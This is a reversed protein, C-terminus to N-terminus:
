REDEMLMAGRPCERVCLGCGKCHGADLSYGGGEAALVPGAAPGGGHDGRASRRPTEHAAMPGRADEGTASRRPTERAAMPGRADEGTASRRPTEHPTHPLLPIREGGRRDIAMDPCVAACTDCRVCHGCAFCRASEARAAPEALGDVVEVFSGIRAGPLREGREGRPARTFAHTAIRDPTVIVDPRASSWTPPPPWSDLAQGSLTQHISRAARAGSGIAHAVTRDRSAVDGGAFVRPLPTAGTPTAAVIGDPHVLGAPFPSLDARQGIALLVRDVELVREGGGDFIPAVHGRSDRGLHAAALEVGIVAGRAERFARVGVGNLIEVGEAIAQKVEAPVAPMAERTELVLVTVSRTGLRRATRAVDMASSGGGIVAVRRGLAPRDGVSVRRLLDLGDQVGDAGRGPVDLGIGVGAGTAVFVADWAGLAQWTGPGVRQGTEVTIGREIVLEIERDLVARPLRYPPIGHRLVGGLEAESEFITVQYGLRALHYACTLGAPGGGVVAVRERRRARPTTVRGHALGWDGVFRELANVSVAGDWAGRNCARECPHACVRGTVAPFPNDERILAWAGAWDGAQAREIWRPIAEGAPCAAHCPAQAEVWVPRRTRWGGTTLERTTRGPESWGLPRAADVLGPM